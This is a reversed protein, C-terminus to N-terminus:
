ANSGGSRPTSWSARGDGTARSACGALPATAALMAAAELFYRRSLHNM